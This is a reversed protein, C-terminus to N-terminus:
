KLGIWFLRRHWFARLRDAKWLLFHTLVMVIAITALNQPLLLQSLYLRPNNFSALLYRISSGGATPYGILAQFWPFAITGFLLLRVAHRAWRFGSNQALKYEIRSMFIAAVFGAIVGGLQAVSAEDRATLVRGLMTGAAFGTGVSVAATLPYLCVWFMWVLPVMILSAAISALPNAGGTATSPQAGDDGPQAFNGVPDQPTPNPKV